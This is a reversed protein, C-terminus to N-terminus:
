QKDTGPDPEATNNEPKEDTQENENEIEEYEIEEAAKNAEHKYLFYAIVLLILGCGGIILVKKSM